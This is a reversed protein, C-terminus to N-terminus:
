GRRRRALLAVGGGTLLALSAPEPIITNITVNDIRIGFSNPVSTADFQIQDIAIASAAGLDIGAFDASSEAAVRFQETGGLLGVVELSDGTPVRADISELLFAVVSDAADTVFANSLTDAEVNNGVFIFGDGANNAEFTGTSGFTLGDVTQNTMGDFGGFPDAPFIESPAFDFTVSQAAAPSAAVVALALAPALKQLM